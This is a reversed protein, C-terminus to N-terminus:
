AANTEPAAASQASALVNRGSSTLRYLVGEERSQLQFQLLGHAILRGHIPAMREGPIGPVENRRTVWIAIRGAPASEEGSSDDQAPGCEEIQGDEAATKTQAEAHAARATKREALLEQEAAAYAALVLLEDDAAPATDFPFM